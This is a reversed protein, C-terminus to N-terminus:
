CFFSKGFCRWFPSLDDLCTGICVCRIEGTLILFWLQILFFDSLFLSICFTGIQIGAKRRSFHNSGEIWSKLSQVPLMIRADKPEGICSLSCHAWCLTILIILPSSHSQVLLSQAYKVKWGLPPKPPDWQQRWSCILLIYFLRICVRELSVM